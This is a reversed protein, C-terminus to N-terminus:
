SLSSKQLQPTGPLSALKDIASTITEEVAHLLENIRATDDESDSESETTPHDEESAQSGNFHVTRNNLYKWM